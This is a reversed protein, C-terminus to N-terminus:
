FAACQCPVGLKSAAQSYIDRALVRVCWFLVQYFWRSSAEWHCWDSVMWAWFCCRSEKVQFADQNGCEGYVSVLVSYWRCVLMRVHTLQLVHSVNNQRVLCVNYMFVFLTPVSVLYMFLESTSLVWPQAMICQDSRFCLFTNLSGRFCLKSIPNNSCELFQIVLNCM